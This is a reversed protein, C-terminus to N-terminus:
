AFAAIEVLHFRADVDALSLEGQHCVQGPVIGRLLHAHAREPGHDGLAQLREVVADIEGSPVVEVRVCTVLLARALLVAGIQGPQRADHDVRHAALLDAEEVLALLTGHSFRL